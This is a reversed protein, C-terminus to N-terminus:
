KLTGIRSSSVESVIGTLITDIIKHLNVIHSPVQKSRCSDFYETSYSKAINKQYLVCHSIKMFPDPFKKM